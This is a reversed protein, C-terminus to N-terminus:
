NIEPKKDSLNKHAVSWIELPWGETARKKTEQFAKAIEQNITSIRTIKGEQRIWPDIGRCKFKVCKNAKAPAVLRFFDSSHCIMLMKDQIIPDRSASLKKWIAEDTGFHFENWSILGINLGQLIADALWRSTVFNVASGWCNETMFLSFRTLKEALDVRTILWNGNEFSIDRFLEQAEQRTIFNQYYAGQINYDIRDACLDPLPQELMTFTAKKPCVQDITYGYKNLIKEIGSTALYIKYIVSQYDCDQYEMGFVWDGVHSFATHSIDHLLGAIQEEISAGKTKLIAFVGLSHDFRNYEERHTTYYAVGYQHVFKLRQFAPSQILEVIVPEDVKISGYFTNITECVGGVAAFVFLFLLRIFFFM